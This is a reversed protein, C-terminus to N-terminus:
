IDDEPYYRFYAKHEEVIFRELQFTITSMAVPLPIFEEPRRYPCLPAPIAVKIERREVDQITGIYEKSFGAIDLHILVPESM